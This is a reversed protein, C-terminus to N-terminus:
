NMFEDLFFEMRRRGMTTDPKMNTEHEIGGSTDRAGVSGM